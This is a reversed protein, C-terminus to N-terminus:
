KQWYITQVSKRTPHMKLIDPKWGPLPEKAKSAEVLRAHAHGEPEGAATLFDAARQIDCSSCGACLALSKLDKLAMSLVHFAQEYLASKSLIGNVASMEFRTEDFMPGLMKEALGKDMKEPVSAAGGMRVIFLSSM